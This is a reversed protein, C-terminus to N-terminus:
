CLFVEISSERFALCLPCSQAFAGCETCLCLHRCPLVIVSAVRKGCAKCSPGSSAVVRDPDIYASEADEAEGGAAVCGGAEEARDSSIMAQQLRKQLSAATAEQARARAQWAQAEASLQAARAELEANRRAVKEAEAEKERLRRAVTEEAAGLLGRYHRQRKEALTRRLQEGQAQLFQEIEDRQQRIQTALDESLISLAISSQSSLAEQQQQQLKQQQEGFALRLGTSVVNSQHTHLQALDVLQPPQAQMSFPSIPSTSATVERARKRPNTGVGNAFLMHSQDLFGGGGPQPQLSYDNGLPSKGEQVGRNLLVNSPYQAQVAM